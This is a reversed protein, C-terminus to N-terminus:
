KALRQRIEGECEMLWAIRTLRARQEAMERREKEARDDIRSQERNLRDMRGEIASAESQIQAEIRARRAPRGLLEDREALVAELQKSWFTGPFLVASVAPPGGGPSCSPDLSLSEPPMVAWGLLVLGSGILLAERLRLTAM